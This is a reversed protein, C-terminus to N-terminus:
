SMLKLTETIMDKYKVKIPSVDGEKVDYKTTLSVLINNNGLLNPFERIIYPRNNIDISFECIDSYEDEEFPNNGEGFIDGLIAEDVPINDSLSTGIPIDKGLAGIEKLSKLGEIFQEKTKFKVRM